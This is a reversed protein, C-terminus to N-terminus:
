SSPEFGLGLLRGYARRVNRPQLRSWSKAHDALAAPYPVSLEEGSESNGIPCEEVAICSQFLYESVLPPLKAKRVLNRLAREDQRRDQAHLCDHVVNQMIHKVRGTEGYARKLIRHYVRMDGEQARKMNRIARQAEAIARASTEDSSKRLKRYRSRARWKVFQSVVPDDFRRGMRLTQRYMGLIVSDKKQVGTRDYRMRRTTGQPIRLTSLSSFLTRSRSRSVVRRGGFMWSM